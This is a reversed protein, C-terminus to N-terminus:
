PPKWVPCVRMVFTASLPLQEIENAIAVAPSSFLLSVLVITSAFAKM